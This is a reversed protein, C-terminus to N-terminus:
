KNFWYSLKGTSLDKIAQLPIGGGNSKKRAERIEKPSVETFYDHNLMRETLESGLETIMIQKVNEPLKDTLIDKKGIATGHIRIVEQRIFKWKFNSGGIPTLDLEIIEMNENSLIRNWTGWYDCFHFM